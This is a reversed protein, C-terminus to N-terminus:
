KEKLDILMLKIKRFLNVYLYYDKSSMLVHMIPFTNKMNDNLIIIKLLQYYAQLVLNLLQMSSFKNPKQSADRLLAILLTM